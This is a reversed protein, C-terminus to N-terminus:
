GQNYFYSYQPQLELLLRYGISDAEENRYFMRLVEEPDFDLGIARIFEAARSLSESQRVREKEDEEDLERRGTDFQRGYAVEEAETTPNRYTMSLFEEDTLKGANGQIEHLNEAIERVTPAAGPDRSVYGSDRSRFLLAWPSSHTLHHPVYLGDNVQSPKLRAPPFDSRTPDEVIEKAKWSSAITCGWNLSDWVSSPLFGDLAARQHRAITDHYRGDSLYRDEPWGNFFVHLPTAGDLLSRAILADYQKIKLANGCADTIVDGAANRRKVSHGLQEYRVGNHSSRKAQVRLRIWRHELSSGIWWEWDAGNGGEINKSFKKVKLSPILRRLAILNVDTLTEEGPGIGEAIGFEMLGWSSAAVTNMADFMPNM